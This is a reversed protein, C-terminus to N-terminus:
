KQRYRVGFLRCFGVLAIVPHIDLSCDQCVRHPRPDRRHKRTLHRVGPSGRRIVTQEELRNEPTQQIERLTGSLRMCTVVRQHLPRRDRNQVTMEFTKKQHKRHHPSPSPMQEEAPTRLPVSSSNCIRDTSQPPKPEPDNEEMDGRM